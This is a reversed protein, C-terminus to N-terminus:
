PPPRSLQSARVARGPAAATISAGRRTPCDSRTLSTGHVTAPVGDPVPRCEGRCGGTGVPLYGPATVGEYSLPYLM